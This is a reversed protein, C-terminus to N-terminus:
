HLVLSESDSSESAKVRCGQVKGHGFITSSTQCIHFQCSKIMAPYLIIYYLAAHIYMCIFIYFPYIYVCSYVDLQCNNKESWWWGIQAVGKCDAASAKHVLHVWVKIEAQALHQLWVAKHCGCWRSRTLLMLMSLGESKRPVAGPEELKVAAMRGCQPFCGTTWGPRVLLLGM